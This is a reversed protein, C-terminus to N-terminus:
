EDKEQCRVQIAQTIINSFNYARDRMQIDFYITDFDPKLSDPICSEKPIMNADNFICCSSPYNVSLEGSIDDVSGQPPIHDITYEFPYDYRTDTIYLNSFTDAEIAGIESSGLDGDGDEFNIYFTFGESNNKISNKSVSVSTLRPEPPFEDPKICANLSILILLMTWFKYSIQM